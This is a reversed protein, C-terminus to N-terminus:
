HGQSRAGGDMIAKLQPPIFDSEGGKEEAFIFCQLCTDVALGFVNMFLRGVIYGLIAYMFMPLVPSIDPHMADLLFYGVVVTFGMVFMYGIWQVVEGLVAVTGFRIANKCIIGFATKASTCFNQGRIAIQIYANRNLFKIFREFCHLCCQVVKLVIVMIKNKQQQAQKELYMMLYRIFQVLAIIFSGFALSGIHYRWVNWNSVRLSRFPANTGKGSNPTFFWYAVAGAIITQGFAILFNNNWLFSFFSIAFRWDLMYRPPTCRWCKASTGSMDCDAPLAKYVLGAPWSGTCQGPTDATGYAIQYSEFAVNPTYGDPVQSLLFSASLGWSLVWIIGLLSQAAPVLLVTPTHALFKAAVENLGIALMVRRHLFAVILLWVGALGWIVYSSYKLIDRSTQSGVKYGSPCAPQILGLPTCLEWVIEADTTYCWITSAQNPSTANVPNRCYNNGALGSDPFLASSYESSHDHPTTADWQQCLYGSRTRTQVGRYDACNGTCAESVSSGTVLNSAATSVTTGSQVVIATGTSWLSDGQCQGSRAFALFGGMLFGLFVLLIASWVCIRVTFRLALLFVMGVVFSCFGVLVFTDISKDFDGAWTGIQETSASSLADAGLSEFTASASSGIAAVVDGAIKFTCYGNLVDTFDVGPFAVCLLPDSYPCISSPYAQFTFSNQITAQALSSNKLHNWAPLLPDDPYPQYTAPRTNASDSLKAPNCTTMCAENFFENAQNWINSFYDSNMGNPSFLSAGAAPNTLEAMRGSIVSSLSGSTSLDGGNNMSATCRACPTFCCDCLYSSYEASTMVTQLYQRSVSSCIMQKAIVDTAKSVNMTYSLHEFGLLDPGSNWQTRIGCYNGAYDRPKILKSPNGDALGYFSVVLFVIVHIIWIILCFIDTCGRNTVMGHKLQQVVEEPSDEKNEALVTKAVHIKLSAM